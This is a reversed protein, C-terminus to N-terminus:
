AATSRPITEWSRPRCSARAATFRLMVNRIDFPPSKGALSLNAEYFARITGIDEWYGDFLHVQVKHTKIRKRFSKEGFDQHKATALLDIMVAKDFIYLGMSALCDRGKSPIGRAEIWAPDM